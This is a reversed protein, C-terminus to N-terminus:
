PNPNFEHGGRDISAVPRLTNFRDLTAEALEGSSLIFSVNYGNNEILIEDTSNVTDVTYDTYDGIPPGDFVIQTPFYENNNIPSRVGTNYNSEMDDILFYPPGMDEADYLFGASCGGIDFTNNFILVDNVSTDYGSLPPIGKLTIGYPTGGRGGIIINNIINSNTNEGYIGHCIAFGGVNGLGNITNNIIDVDSDLMFVGYSENRPDTTDAGGVIFNNFLNCDGAASFGVGTHTSYAPVGTNDEGGHITNRYIHAVAGNEVWIGYTDNDVTTGGYILPNDQIVINQAGGGVYIGHLEGEWGGEILNREIQVNDTSGDIHIATNHLTGGGGWIGFNDHINIDRANNISIGYGRNTGAGNAGTIRSSAANVNNSNGMIRVGHGEEAGDSGILFCNDIRIYSSGGDILVAGNIDPPATVPGIVFISELIVGEVGTLTIVYNRSVTEITTQYILPDSNYNFFGFDWGGQIRFNDYASGSLVIDETYIGQEILIRTFGNSLAKTIATNITQVPLLRHFGDNTDVGGTSVYIADDTTDFIYPTTFPSAPSLGNGGLDLTTIGNGDLYVNYTKNPMLHEDPIFVARKVGVAPEAWEFHGDNVTRVDQLDVSMLLFSGEVTTRFMEKNFDFYIQTDPKQLGFPLTTYSGGIGTIEYSSLMDTSASTQFQWEYSEDLNFGDKSKVHLGINVTVETISPFFSYPRFIALRDASDWYFSGDSSDYEQGNYSYRFNEELSRQDMPKSFLIGIMANRPVDYLSDAPDFTIIRPIDSPGTTALDYLPSRLQCGALLLPFALFLLLLKKM